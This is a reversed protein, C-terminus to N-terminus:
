DIFSRFFLDHVKDALIPQALATPHIGDAQMFDKRDAAIGELFRPLFVVPYQNSLTEFIQQFRENYVPGLNPPLRVGILLVRIDKELALEIMNALNKRTREFSFGRLGDNGGLELIMHSPQHKELLAPLREAGGVSTEGSISANIVQHTNNLNKLKEEFLHPWSQKISINYAASLSDGMILIKFGDANATTSCLVSLVFTFRIFLMSFQMTTDFKVFVTFAGSPVKVM